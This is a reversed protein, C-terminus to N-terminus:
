RTSEPIPLSAPSPETQAVTKQTEQLISRGVGSKAVRLDLPVGAATSERKICEMVRQTLAAEEKKCASLDDAVQAHIYVQGNPLLRVEREHGKENKAVLVVGRKLMEETASASPSGTELSFGDTQLLQAISDALSKMGVARNLTDRIWQKTSTQNRQITKRKAREDKWLTLFARNINVARELSQTEANQGAERAGFQTLEISAHIKKSLAEVAEQACAILFEKDAHEALSLYERLLRLEDPRYYTETNIAHQLIGNLAALHAELETLTSEHSM